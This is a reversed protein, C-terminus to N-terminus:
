VRHLYHEFYYLLAFAAVVAAVPLALRRAVRWPEAWAATLLFILGVPLLAAISLQFIHAGTGEDAEPPPIQGSLVIAVAAAAVPLLAALSLVVLAVTSANNIRETRM